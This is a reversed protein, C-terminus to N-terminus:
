KGVRKKFEVKMLKLANARHSIANKVSSPIEAFTKNYGDVIFLSDYGFGNKGKEEFTVLKRRYPTGDETRTTDINAINESIVDMRYREATLGSANISFSDFISM